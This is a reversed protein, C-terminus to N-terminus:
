GTKYKCQAPTAECWNCFRNKTAPFEGKAIAYDINFIRENFEEWIADLQKREFTKESKEKTDVFVYATKVREVDPWVVDLLLAAFLKLQDKYGYNKGTKWDIAVAEDKRKVALDIVFRLWVDDDFYGTKTFRENIAFNSEIVVDDALRILNKLLPMVREVEPYSTPAFEVSKDTRLLKGRDELIKHVDKGRKQQKTETFPMVKLINQLEYKRACQEFTEIRSWSVPNKPIDLM